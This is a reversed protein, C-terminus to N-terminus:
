GKKGEFMRNAIMVYYPSFPLMAIMMSIIRPFRPLFCIGEIGGHGSSDFFFAAFALALFAISAPFYVWPHYLLGSSDYGFYSCLWFAFFVLSFAMTLSQLWTWQLLHGILFGALCPAVVRLIFKGFLREAENEKANGM